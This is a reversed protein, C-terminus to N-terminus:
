IMRQLKLFFPQHQNSYTSYLLLGSPELHSIKSFTSSKRSWRLWRFADLILLFPAKLICFVNQIQPRSLWPSCRADSFLMNRLVALIHGFFSKGLILSRWFGRNQANQKKELFFLDIAGTTTWTLNGPQHNWINRFIPFSKSNAPRVQWVKLLFWFFVRRSKMRTM